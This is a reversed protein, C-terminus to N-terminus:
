NKGKRKREGTIGFLSAIATVALGALTLNSGNQNSTQPLKQGQQKTEKSEGINQVPTESVKTTDVTVEQKHPTESTNPVSPTGPVEPNTTPTEPTTGPVDPTTPVVPTEPTNPTSPQVPTVPKDPTSPQPNGGPNNQPQAKFVVTINVPASDHKIGAIQKVANDGLVDAHSADNTASILDFGAQAAIAVADFSKPEDYAFQDNKDARTGTFTLTQSDAKRSTSTIVHGNADQFVYKITETVNKTDTERKLHVVFFQDTNQNNDLSGFQYYSLETENPTGNASVNTLSDKNENTIGVYGYNNKSEELQGLTNEAEPFTIADGYKGKNSTSEVYADGANNSESFKGDADKTIFKHSNDDYFVLHAKEPQAQLFVYQDKMGKAFTAKGLNSPAYVLKYGAAEYGNDGDASWLKSTADSTSGVKGAIGNIDHTSLPAGNGPTLTSPDAPISFDPDLGIYHINYSARDEPIYLVTLNIDHSDQNVNFASIYSQSDEKTTINSLPNDADDNTVKWTFSNIEPIKVKDFSQAPSWVIDFDKGTVLDHKGSQAHFTLTKQYIPAADAGNQYQYLITEKVTKTANKDIQDNVKHKLYIYQDAMGKTFTGKGVNQPEEALEYGAKEYDTASWLSSTVDYSHDIKGGINNIDHIKNGNSDTIAKGDSPVFGSTKDTVGVDIYHINFSAPAKTVYVIFQSANENSFKGWNYKDLNNRDAGSPFALQTEKGDKVSAVHDLVYNDNYKLYNLYYNSGSFGTITEDTSGQAQMSGNPLDQTPDDIDRFHLEVTRLDSATASNDPSLPNQQQSISAMWNYRVENVWKKTNDSNIKEIKIYPAPTDILEKMVKQNGTIANSGNFGFYGQSKRAQNDDNFSKINDPMTYNPTTVIVPYIGAGQQFQVNDACKVHYIRTYTNDDDKNEVTVTIKSKLQNLKEEDNKTYLASNDKTSNSLHSRLYIALNGKLAGAMEDASMIHYIFDPCKGVSVTIDFDTGMASSPNFVPGNQLTTNIQVRGANDWNRVNTPTSYINSFTQTKLYPKTSIYQGPISLNSSYTQGNIKIDNKASYTFSKQAQSDDNTYQYLIPGTQDNKLRATTGGSGWNLNVDINFPNSPSATNIYDNAKQDFVIRYNDGMNYIRGVKNNKYIIDKSSALTNDYHLTSGDAMPLGMDVDIYDQDNIPKKLSINFSLSEEGSNAKTNTKSNTDGQNLAEAHVDSITYNSVDAENKGPIITYVIKGSQYNDIGNPQKVVHYSSGDTLNINLDGGGYSAAYQTGMDDADAFVLQNWLNYTQKQSNLTNDTATATTKLQVMKGNWDPAIKTTVLFAQEGNKTKGLSQVTYPNNTPDQSGNDELGSSEFGKPILVIFKPNKVNTDGWCSLQYKITIKDGVTVRLGRDSDAASNASGDANIVQAYGSFNAKQVETENDVLLNQVTKADVQQGNQFQLVNTKSLTSDTKNAKNEAINQDSVSSHNDKVDKESNISTSVSDQAVANNGKKKTNQENLKTAKTQSSAEKSNNNESSSNTAPSSTTSTKDASEQSAPLTVEKVDKINSSDNSINSSEENDNTPTGEAAQATAAGGM